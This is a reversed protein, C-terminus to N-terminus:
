KFANICRKICFIEWSHHSNGLLLQGINKSPWGLDPPTKFPSFGWSVRAVLEHINCKWWFNWPCIMPCWSSWPQHNTPQNIEPAKWWKPDKCSINKPQGLDQLANKLAGVELPHSPKTPRHHTQHILLGGHGGNICTPPHKQGWFVQHAWGGFSGKSSKFYDGQLPSHPNGQTLRTCFRGKWMTTLSTGPLCRFEFRWFLTQCSILGNIMHSTVPPHNWVTTKRTKAPKQPSSGIQCTYKESTTSVWWSALPPRKRRYGHKFVGLDSIKPTEDGFWTLIKRREENSRGKAGFKNSRLKTLLM